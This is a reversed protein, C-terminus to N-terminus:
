LGYGVVEIYCFGGLKGIQFWVLCEICRMWVDCEVGIVVDVVFVINVGRLVDIVFVDEVIDVVINMLMDCDIIFVQCFCVSFDGIM